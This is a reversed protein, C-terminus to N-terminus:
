FCSNGTAAMYTLLDPCFSCDKSLVKWLHNRDLKLENPQSTESSFILICFTLLRISLSPLLECQRQCPSSFIFIVIYILHLCLGRDLWGWAFRLHSINESLLSFWFHWLVSIIGVYACTGEMLTHVLYPIAFMPQIAISFGLSRSLFGYCLTCLNLLTLQGHGHSFSTLTLNCVGSQSTGEM